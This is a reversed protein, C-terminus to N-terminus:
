YQRKKPGYLEPKARLHISAAEQNRNPIEANSGILEMVPANMGNCQHNCERGTITKAFGIKHNPNNVLKTLNDCSIVTGCSKCKYVPTMKLM